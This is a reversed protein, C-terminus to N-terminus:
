CKHLTPGWNTVAMWHVLDRIEVWIFNSTRDENAWWIEVTLKGNEEEHDYGHKKIQKM